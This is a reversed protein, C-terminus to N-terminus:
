PIDCGPRYGVSLQFTGALLNANTTRPPASAFTVLTISDGKVANIAGSGDCPTLLVESGSRGLEGYWGDTLAAGQAFSLNEGQPWWPDSGSAVAAALGIALAAAFIRYPTLGIKLETVIALWGVLTLVAVALAGILPYWFLWYVCFVGLAAVYPLAKLVKGETEEKWGFRSILPNIRVAVLAILLWVIVWQAVVFDAKIGSLVLNPVDQAIAIEAGLRGPLLGADGVAWFRVFRVVLGVFPLLVLMAAAIKTSFEFPDGLSQWISRSPQNTM